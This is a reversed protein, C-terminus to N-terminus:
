KHRSQSIYIMGNSNQGVGISLYVCVCVGERMCVVVVVCVCACVSVCVGVCVCAHVCVGKETPLTAQWQCQQDGVTRRGEVFSILIAWVGPASMQVRIM